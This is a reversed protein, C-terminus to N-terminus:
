KNITGIHSSNSSIDPFTPKVKIYVNQSKKKKKQSFHGIQLRIYNLLLYSNGFLSIIPFSFDPNEVGEKRLDLDQLFNSIPYTFKRFVWTKELTQM